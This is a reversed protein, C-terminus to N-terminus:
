RVENGRLNQAAECVIILMGARGDISSQPMQYCESIM